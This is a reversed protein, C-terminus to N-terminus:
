KGGQFPKVFTNNTPKLNLSLADGTLHLLCEVNLRDNWFIEIQDWSRGMPKVSM